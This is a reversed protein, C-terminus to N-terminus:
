EKGKLEHLINLVETRYNNWGYKRMNDIDHKGPHMQEGFTNQEKPLGEEIAELLTAKQHTRDQTVYQSLAEVLDAIRDDHILSANINFRIIAELDKDPIPIM